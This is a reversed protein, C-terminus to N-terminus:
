DDEVNSLETTQEQSASKKKSSAKDTKGAAFAMQPILISMCLLTLMLALKRNLKKM